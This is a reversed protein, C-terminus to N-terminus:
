GRLSRALQHMRSNGKADIDIVYRGQALLAV